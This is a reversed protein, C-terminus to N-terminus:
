ANDDIAGLTFMAGFYIKWEHDRRTKFLELRKDYLFRINDESAASGFEAPVHQSTVERLSHETNSLQQKLNRRWVREFYNFLRQALSHPM